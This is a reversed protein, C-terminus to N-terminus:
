CTIIEKGKYVRGHMGKILSRISDYYEHYVPGYKDFCTIRYRHQGDTGPSVIFTDQGNRFSLANCSQLIATLIGTQMWDYMESLDALSDDRFVDRIDVPNAPLIYKM